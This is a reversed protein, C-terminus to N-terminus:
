RPPHSHSLASLLRLAIATPKLQPWLNEYKSFHKQGTKSTFSTPPSGQYYLPYSGAQWHLPSPNSGQDSFIGHAGLCSLGHAVVVSAQTCLRHEVLSAVGTLLGHVAVWLLGRSVAVM